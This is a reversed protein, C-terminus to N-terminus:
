AFRAIAAILIVIIIVAISLAVVSLKQNQENDAAIKETMIDELAEEEPDLKGNQNIDLM